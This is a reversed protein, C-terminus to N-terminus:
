HQPLGMAEWRLVSSLLLESCAAVLGAAGSYHMVRGSWPVLVLEPFQQCM